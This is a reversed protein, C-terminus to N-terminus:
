LTTSACLENIKSEVHSPLTYRAVQRSGSARGSSRLDVKEMLNTVVLRVDTAFVHTEKDTISYLSSGARSAELRRVILVKDHIRYLNLDSPNKRDRRDDKKKESRRTGSLWLKKVCETYQHPYANCSKAKADHPVLREGEVFAQYLARSGELQQRNVNLMRAVAAVKGKPVNSVISSHLVQRAQQVEHKFRGGQVDRGDSMVGLVEAVGECVLEQLHHRTREAITEGPQGGSFTELM